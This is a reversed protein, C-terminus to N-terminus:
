HVSLQKATRQSVNLLLARSFYVLATKFRIERIVYHLSSLLPAEKM